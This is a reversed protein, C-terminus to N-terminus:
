SLFSNASTSLSDSFSANEIDTSASNTLRKILDDLFSSLSFSHSLRITDDELIQQLQTSNIIKNDVYKALFKLLPDTPPFEHVNDDYILDHVILKKLGRALEQLVAKSKKIM